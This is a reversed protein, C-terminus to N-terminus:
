IALENPARDSFIYNISCYFWAFGLPQGPQLAVHRVHAHVRVIADAAGAVDAGSEGPYANMDPTYKM